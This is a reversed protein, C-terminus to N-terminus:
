DPVRKGGLVRKYVSTARTAQEEWTFNREVDSRAAEALASRAEPRDLLSSIASGLAESSVPDVAVGSVGDRCPHLSGSFAVLPIGAAMYNLNKQPVGDCRPRPNVAVHARGLAEHLKAFPVSGIQVRDRIGLDRALGEYADFSSETLIELRGAPRRELVHKFARLLHEIGQYPALNGAYIITGGEKGPDTATARGWCAGLEVGNGVVEIREPSVAGRSVLHDRLVDSVAVVFDSRRPLRGDITQGVRRKLAAPLWPAYSPLETELVTHADYVVPLATGSASAVLLGEYHHAHILDFRRGRLVRRLQLVLLPDLVLLKGLSPGPAAVRIGRARAIRHVVVSRDIEGEHAAYTVVEVAHGLRALAESLRTARIPTGRPFPVPCAAVVCIRLPGNV